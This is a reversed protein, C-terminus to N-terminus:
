NRIGSSIQTNADKQSFLRRAVKRTEKKETDDRDKFLKDRDHKLEGTVKRATYGSRTPSAIENENGNRAILPISICLTLILKKM